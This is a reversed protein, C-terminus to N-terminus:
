SSIGLGRKIDLTHHVVEHADLRVAHAITAQGFEPHLYPLAPDAAAVERLWEGASLELARLGASASLKEYGRVRALENEDYPVVTAEPAHNAAWIRETSIRLVDAVHWVYESPSWVRPSPRQRVSDGVMLGKIAPTAGVRERAEGVSTTWAFGCENCEGQDMQDFKYM